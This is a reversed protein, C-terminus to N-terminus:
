PLARIRTEDSVDLGSADRSGGASAVEAGRAARGEADRDIVAVRAGEDAFLHATARGMGSAAGTVLAVKGAITRELRSLRAM